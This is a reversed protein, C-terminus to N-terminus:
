GNRRVEVNQVVRLNGLEVRLTCLGPEGTKITIGTSRRTQPPTCVTPTDTTVRIPLLEDCAKRAGVSLEPRLTFTAKSAVLPLDGLRDSTQVSVALATVQSADFVEVDLADKPDLTSQVRGAGATGQATFSLIGLFSRELKAVDSAAPFPVPDGALTAGRGSLKAVIDFSTGTAFLLPADCTGRYRLEVRDPARVDVTRTFADRYARGEADHAIVAVQLKAVGERKARLDVRGANTPQAVELVTPDDVTVQEFNADNVVQPTCRTDTPPCSLGLNLGIQAGLAAHEPVNLTLSPLTRTRADDGALACHVLGMGLLAGAFRGIARESKM